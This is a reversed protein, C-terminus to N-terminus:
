LSKSPVKKIVEEGIAKAKDFQNETSTPLLGNAPIPTSDDDDADEGDGDEEPDEENENQDSEDDNPVTEQRRFRRPRFVGM